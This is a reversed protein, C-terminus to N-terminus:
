RTEEGLRCTQPACSDSELFLGKNEKELGRNSHMRLGSGPGQWGGDALYYISIGSCSLLLSVDSDDSM